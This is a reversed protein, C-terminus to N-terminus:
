MELPRTQMDALIDCYRMAKKGSNRREGESVQHSMCIRAVRYHHPELIGAAIIHSYAYIQVVYLRM